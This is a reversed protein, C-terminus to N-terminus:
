DPSFMWVRLPLGAEEMAKLRTNGAILTLHGRDNMVIPLEIRRNALMQRAREVKEPDLQDLSVDPGLCSNEVPTQPNLTAVKGVKSKTLWDYRTPFFTKYYDHLEETENVEDWERAFNPM